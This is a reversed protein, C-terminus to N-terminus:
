LHTRKKMLYTNEVVIKFIFLENIKNDNIYQEIDNETEQKVIFNLGYIKEENTEMIKVTGYGTVFKGDIAWKNFHAAKNDKVCNKIIDIVEDSGKIYLIFENNSYSYGYKAVKTDPLLGINLETGKVFVELIENIHREEM